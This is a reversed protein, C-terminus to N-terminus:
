FCTGLHWLLQTQDQKASLKTLFSLLAFCNTYQTTLSSKPGHCYLPRDGVPPLQGFDGFLIVSIGGLPTDFQATAQRLRKDVWALMAQGMM